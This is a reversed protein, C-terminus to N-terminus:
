FKATFKYKFRNEGDVRLVLNGFHIDWRPIFNPDSFSDKKAKACIGPSHSGTTEDMDVELM